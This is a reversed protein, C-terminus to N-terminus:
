SSQLQLAGLMLSVFAMWHYSALSEAAREYDRVLRRFRTSWAFSREVVWRRPMLVFGRKAEPLRVVVLKIGAAEAQSAPEEGTYGQDM